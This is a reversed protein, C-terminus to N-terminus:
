FKGAYFQGETGKNMVWGEAEFADRIVQPTEKPGIRIAAGRSHLSLGGARLAGEAPVYCGWFLNINNARVALEDRGYANWIASLIRGLSARVARACRIKRTTMSTQWALRLTFPTGIDVLSRAEWRLCPTGNNHYDIKGFFQDLQNPRPWQNMHLGDLYLTPETETM